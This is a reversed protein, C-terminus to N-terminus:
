PYSLVQSYQIPELLRPSRDGSPDDQVSIIVEKQFEGKPDVGNEDLGSTVYQVKIETKFELDNKGPLSFPVTGETEDFEGVTNCEAGSGQPYLKCDNPNGFNTEDTFNLPDTITKDLSLSKTAEDFAQARVVEMTQMAIGLAMQEHETRVTQKQSQLGAQLQNFSLFTAILIAVLALLTQQM